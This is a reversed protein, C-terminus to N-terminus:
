IKKRYEVPSMGYERRFLRDFYLPDGVGVSLAIKAVTDDTNRLLQAAVSIRFKNIYAIPSMGYCRRFVAYFNSHSMHLLGAMDEIRIKNMYNEGIYESLRLMAENERKEKPVATGFIIDLVKYICSYKEFIGDASFLMDFVGSLEKVLQKPLVTPFEFLREPRDTKNLAADIFLWRARMNGSRPDARHVISQRVGAPAIFFGGEGTNEQKKTGIRIDYSGEVAQVVSLWPLVKVHKVGDMDRSWLSDLSFYKIEASQIDM